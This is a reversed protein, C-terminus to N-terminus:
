EQKLDDDKIFDDDDSLSKEDDSSTEDLTIERNSYIISRIVSISRRCCEDYTVRCFSKNLYKETFIDAKNCINEMIEKIKDNNDIIDLFYNNDYLNDISTNIDTLINDRNINNKDILTFIEHFTFYIGYEIDKDEQGKVINYNIFSFVDNENLSKLTNINNLASIDM